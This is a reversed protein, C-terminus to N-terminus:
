AAGHSGASGALERDIFRLSAAQLDEDHQISRHDGGPVVLLRSDPVCMWAALERSHAVPVQEDGEAHLLLLPISLSRVAGYLDSAELLRTLAPRDASFSFEGADLGRRLGQPSAPCIAVVAHARAPAAAMIALFGGMSSGRLAVPADPAGIACRLVAAIKAVDDIARADMPGDSAGHGRQDFAIAAFGAASAARAFDYHNEKCSGAGHIIVIGARPDRGSAPLWLSYALGDHRSTDAPPADTNVRPDSM